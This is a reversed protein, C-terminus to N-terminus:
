TPSAGQARLERIKRRLPAIFDMSVTRTSTKMARASHWKSLALRAVARVFEVGKAGKRFYATLGGFASAVVELEAQTLHGLAVEDLLHARIIKGRRRVLYLVMSVFAAVFLLWLFWMLVFVLCGEVSGGLLTASGNWLAHLLVAATYGAVPALPRLWRRSTERAIGIGLGTMSTYLPHAWPTLVGRLGFTVWVGGAGGELGARAYYIVNEVAAFGIACFSAYIIGDVVGDFERRLFYFFGLVLIGKSGEEVLPASIVTSIVEGARGGIAAGVVSNVLASVGCAAIGGWALAMLLAYAPEPDYRDLLRPFTLYVLAAPFALLAGVFMSKLMPLGVGSAVPFAVFLVFLLGLGVLMGLGWLGCGVRRRLKEPDPLESSPARGPPPM